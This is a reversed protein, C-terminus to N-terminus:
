LSNTKLGEAINKQILKESEFRKIVNNAFENNTATPDKELHKYNETNKLQRKCEKVYDKVYLLSSCRRQRRQHNFYWRESKIKRTSKTRKLFTRISQRKLKKNEADNDNDTAEIFKEVM